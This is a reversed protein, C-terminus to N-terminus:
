FFYCVHRQTRQRSLPAMRQHDKNFGHLIVTTPKEVRAGGIVVSFDGHFTITTSGNHFLSRDIDFDRIMRLAVDTNPSARDADFFRALM